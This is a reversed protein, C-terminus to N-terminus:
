SVNSLSNCAARKERLINRVRTELERVELTGISPQRQLKTVAGEVVAKICDEQIGLSVLAKAGEERIPIRGQGWYTISMVTTRPKKVLFLVVTEGERADSV